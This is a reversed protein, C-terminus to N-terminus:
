GRTTEELERWAQGDRGGGEIRQVQGREVHVRIHPFPLSYHNTTGAVVGAADEKDSYPPVPHGHLHGWFPEPGFGYRPKQFHEELFTFTFDTGEPDTVRVRSGPGHEWIPGWAKRQLLDWLDNPFLVTPLMERSVWPIGEYHYPTKPMPGGLGRVLLDYGMKETFTEIEKRWAPPEIPDKGWVTNGMFTRIEDLEDCERDPGMDAWFVDVTAGEERMAQVVAEVVVEDHFTDVAVLVRIGPRIGYGAPLSRRVSPGRALHRAYPLYQELEQDGKM